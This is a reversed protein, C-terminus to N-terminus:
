TGKTNSSRKETQILLLTFATQEQKVSVAQAFIIELHTIVLNCINKRPM